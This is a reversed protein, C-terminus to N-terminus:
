ENRLQRPTIFYETNATKIFNWDSVPFNLKVFGSTPVNDILRDGFKNVFDTIAPNHGFIILNEVSNPCNKIINALKFADFTYLEDSFYILKQNHNWIETFIICTKKARNSNSSWIVVDNPILSKTKLAMLQSNLIGIPILDRNFDVTYNEWSSKAHRIFYLSKMLYKKYSIVYNLHLFYVNDAYCHV